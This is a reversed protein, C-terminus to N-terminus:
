DRLVLFTTRNSQGKELLVEGDSLNHVECHRLLEWIPDLLVDRFVQFQSLQERSFKEPSIM